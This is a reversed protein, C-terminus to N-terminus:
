QGPKIRQNKGMRGKHLNEWQVFQEPTLTSKLQSNFNDRIPKAQQLMSSKDLNQTKLENLKTIRELLAQYIKTKQDDTLSLKKQLFISTKQARQEPTLDKGKQAYSISVLLFLAIIIGLKKM